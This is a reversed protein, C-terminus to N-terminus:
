LPDVAAAFCLFCAEQSGLFQVCTLRRRSFDLVRRRVVLLQPRDVAAVLFSVFHVLAARSPAEHPFAGSLAAMM